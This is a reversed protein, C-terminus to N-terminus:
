KNYKDWSNQNISMIENVSLDIVKWDQWENLEKDLQDINWVVMGKFFRMENNISINNQLKDKMSKADGMFYLGDLIKIPNEYTSHYTQIFALDKGVPGGFGVVINKSKVDEVYNEIKDDSTKNLMVGYIKGKKILTVLIITKSFAPDEINSKAVLVQGTKVVSQKENNIQNETNVQNKETNKNELNSQKKKNQCSILIATILLSTLILKKM